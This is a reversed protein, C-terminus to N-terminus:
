PRAQGPWRGGDPRTGNCAPGITAPYIAPDPGAMVVLMSSQEGSLYQAKSPQCADLGARRVLMSGQEGSLCRAKSPQCADLGARRVLM